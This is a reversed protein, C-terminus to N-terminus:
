SSNRTSPTGLPSFCFFINWYRFSAAPPTQPSALSPILPHLAIFPHTFHFDGIPQEGDPVFHIFLGVQDDLILLHAPLAFGLLAGMEARRIDVFPGAFHGRHGKFVADLAPGAPDATGIVVDVPHIRLATIADRIFVSLFWRPSGGSSPLPTGRPSFAAACRKPHISSEGQRVRSLTTKHDAAFHIPSPNKRYLPILIQWSPSHAMLPSPFPHIKPIVAIAQSGEGGTHGHHGEVGIMAFVSEGGIGESRHRKFRRQDQNRDVPFDFGASVHAVVGKGDVDEASVLLVEGKMERALGPFTQLDSPFLAIIGGIQGISEGGDLANGPLSVVAAIMHQIQAFHLVVLVILAIGQAKEPPVEKGARRIGSLSVSRRLRAHNQIPPASFM